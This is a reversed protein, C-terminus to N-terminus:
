LKMQLFSEVIKPDFHTGSQERLYKKVEEESWKQRYPRNSTLADWVDIVAFVRAALPIQEGKLGQPYGTGDWREHHCYPIELAKRLYPIPYLLEYAYGPHKRMIVWEEQSLPGTKLLISDPIGMKGIDHLLSGRRIQILDEESFGIRRALRLAIETVRQTHGETEKDRLDMARSWGELTTDYALTLDMNSRQLGDFLSINDIAIAAQGALAELFELWEPDIDLPQRHFIELIGKIQGKATLPIGLYTIFEEGAFRASDISSIEKLNQVLLLHNELAAKGAYGEGIRCHFKQIQTSRFGRGAAYKLMQPQSDNLLIDTADVMLQSIVRDLLINLTIKLDLASNIAIDIDRLAELRQLQQQIQQEAWKQKTIDRTIGLLATIEGQTNRLPVAHTEMWHRTGRIGSMEFQLMGSEGQFVRETLNNFAARYAPDVLGIVSKGIVEDVSNAEIMKLGAPNIELLTGDKGLLKVCEPETEFILQLRNEREKAVDELQKLETVDQGTGFMRIAKGEKDTVVEGRSLIMRITGDQRILRHYYVFPKSTKYAEEITKQVYERDDPHVCELFGEYTPKFEEPLVNFINFLENSWTVKNTLIEWDWYGLKAIKQAEALRLETQSHVKRIEAERLERQIAPILRTFSGKVIFDHAGAKLSDIANEETLTGSLMIIPIDKKTEKAILIADYGTFDNMSYDSLIIDWNHKELASKMTEASAVQEYVLSKWQKRLERVVLDADNKNDEVLLVHLPEKM